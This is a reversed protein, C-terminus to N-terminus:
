RNGPIPWDSLIRSAMEKGWLTYLAASPHFGDEAILHPEPLQDFPVPITDPAGALDDARATELAKAHRALTGRLPQPLLPFHEIPPLGTVYILAPGYLNRIRDLLADQRARWTRVPTLRTTDNVGLVLIVVDAPDPHAQALRALTSRTTAGTRADLKWDVRFHDGLVKGAQGILAADQHAVGVGAASSDGIVRLRLPPGSGVVGTRPGAAEPLQLARSIVWLAQPILVPSLLLRAAPDIM